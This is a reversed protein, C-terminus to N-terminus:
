SVWLLHPRTGAWTHGPLWCTVQMLTLQSAPQVGEAETKVKSRKHIVIPNVTSSM